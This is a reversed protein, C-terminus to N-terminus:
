EGPAHEDLLRVFLDKFTTGSLVALLKLQKHLDDPLEINVNVV